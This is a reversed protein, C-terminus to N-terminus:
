TKEGKRRREANLPSTVALLGQARGARWHKADAKEFAELEAGTRVPAPLPWDRVWEPHAAYVWLKWEDWTLWLSSDPDRRM